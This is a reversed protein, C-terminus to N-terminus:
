SNFLADTTRQRSLEVHTKLNAGALEYQAEMLPLLIDLHETQSFDHCQGAARGCMIRIRQVHGRLTEMLEEIYANNYATIIWEHFNDDLNDVDVPSMEKCRLIEDHFFQMQKPDLRHGYQSLAIPELTERVQYTDMIQKLTIPCVQVGKKPLIIVLNEQELKNLAERIPTRSASLDSVLESEDLFVGPEFQYTIIKEKIYHYAKSKLTSEKM